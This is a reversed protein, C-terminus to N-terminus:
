PNTQTDRSKKDLNCAEKYLEAYSKDMKAMVNLVIPNNQLGYFFHIESILTERM